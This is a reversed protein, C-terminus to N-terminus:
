MCGHLCQLFICASIELFRIIRIIGLKKLITGPLLLNSDEPKQAVIYVVYERAYHIDPQIDALAAQLEDLNEGKQQFMKNSM